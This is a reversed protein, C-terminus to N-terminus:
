DNLRRFDAAAEGPRIAGDLFFTLPKDYLLSLSVLIDVPIESHGREYKGLTGPALGVRFDRELAAVASATSAYRKWARAARLSAGIREYDLLPSAVVKESGGAMTEREFPIVMATGM